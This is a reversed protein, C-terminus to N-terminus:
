VAFSAGEFGAGAVLGFVLAACIIKVWKPVKHQKKPKPAQENFNQEPTYYTYQNEMFIDGKKIVETKIKIM